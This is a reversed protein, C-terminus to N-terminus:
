IITNDRKKEIKGNLKYDNNKINKREDFDFIKLLIGKIYNIKRRLENNFISESFFTIIGFIFFLIINKSISIKYKM